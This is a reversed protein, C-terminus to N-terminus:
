NYKLELRYLAFNGYNRSFVLGTSDPLWSPSVDNYLGNCTFENDIKLGEEQRGKVLAELEGKDYTTQTLQTVKRNNLNVAWIEFADWRVSYPPKNHSGQELVKTRSTHKVYAIWRGEPSWAPETGKTVRKLNTGNLDCIWIECDLAMPDSEFALRQGDPSWTPNSGSTVMRLGTGNPKIVWISFNRELIPDDKKVEKTFAIWQGDPSWRPKEYFVSYPDDPITLPSKGTGDRNAVWLGYDYAKSGIFAIKRGDPSWTSEFASFNNDGILVECDGDPHLIWVKSDCDFTIDKGGPVVRPNLINEFDTKIVKGSMQDTEHGQKNVSQAAKNDNQGSDSSSCGSIMAM